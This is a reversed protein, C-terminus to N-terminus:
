LEGLERAIAMGLVAIVMLAVVWQSTKAVRDQLVRMENLQSSTPQGAAQIEKQLIAMRASAPRQVILGLLFAFIGAAGGITIIIGPPTSIWNAQFGGSDIWYMLIGAVLTLIGSTAMAMPFQTLALKGMVTGGAPGAAKISPTFFLVSFLTTGVWFIGSLIHIIRLVIMYIDM